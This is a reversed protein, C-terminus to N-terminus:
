QEFGVGPERAGNALTLLEHEEEFIIEAASRQSPPINEGGHLLTSENGRTEPRASGITQPRADLHKDPVLLRVLFAFFTSIATYLFVTKLSANYADRAPHQLEPPLSAVFKAQHRIKNILLEAPSHTSALSSPLITKPYTSWYLVISFWTHIFGSNENLFYIAVTGIFPFLGFIMDLMKYRGTKHMMWGAFVSGTSMVLSNPSLHAGAESVSTLRVTVLFNSVSSLMPIRQNLLVLLLIPEPSLYLEVVLFAILSVFAFMLSGLVTPSDWPKDNNYRESLYFLVSGVCLLLTGSGGYDTRKLIEMTSRGEGPTVYRLNYSTLIYSLFFLPLQLLFAWRWGLRDTVMGGFPGGLGLGLGNVVSGVGQALGRSKFSLTIFHPDKLSDLFYSCCVRICYMDSVIISTTTFLGDGGMGALFRAIILMEMSQSLGCMLCGAGAFFLATHNAGKWGLINCLRGYLPTFTRTALLYATGLWSAQNSQNFDSSIPALTTPVLTQNFASLFIAMWVGALIRMRTSPSINHPGPPEKKLGSANDLLPQREDTPVSM